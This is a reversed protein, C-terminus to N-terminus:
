KRSNIWGALYSTLMSEVTLAAGVAACATTVSVGWGLGIFLLVLGVWFKSENRDTTQLFEWLRKM